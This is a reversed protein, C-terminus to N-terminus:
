AAGSGFMSQLRSLLGSQAGAAPEMSTSWGGNMATGPSVMQPRAGQQQRMAMAQLVPNMPNGQGAVAQALQARQAPDLTPMLGQPGNPMMM